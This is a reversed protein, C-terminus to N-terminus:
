TRFPQRLFLCRLDVLNFKWSWSNRIVDAHFFAADKFTAQQLTNQHNSLLVIANPPDIDSFEIEIKTLPSRLRALIHDTQSYYGQIFFEELETLSAVAEGVGKNVDFFDCFLELQRLNTGRQLLELILPTDELLHDIWTIRFERFALFSIPSHALMFEHFSHINAGDISVPLQVLPQIGADYLAHCTLMAALLDNHTKICFLMHRLIDLGLEPKVSGGHWLPVAPGATKRM